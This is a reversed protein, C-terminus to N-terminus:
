VEWLRRQWLSASLLTSALRGDEAPSDEQQIGGQERSYSGCAELKM